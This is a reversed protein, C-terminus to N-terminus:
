NSLIYAGSVCVRGSFLHLQITTVKDPSIERQQHITTTNCVVQILLILITARSTTTKKTHTHIKKRERERKRINTTTQKEGNKNLGFM